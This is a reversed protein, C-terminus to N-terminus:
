GGSVSLRPLFRRTLPVFQIHLCRGLFALNALFRFLKALCDQLLRIQARGALADFDKHGIFFRLRLVVADHSLALSQLLFLLTGHRQGSFFNGGEFFVTVSQQFIGHGSAKEVRLFFQMLDVFRNILVNGLGEFEPAQGRFGIQFGTGAAMAAAASVAM